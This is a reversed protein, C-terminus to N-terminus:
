CPRRALDRLCCVELPCLLTMAVERPQRPRQGRERPYKSKGNPIKWELWGLDPKLCKLFVELPPPPPLCGTLSCSPCLIPVQSPASLFTPPFHRFPLHCLRLAGPAPRWRGHAARCLAQLAGPGCWLHCHPDKIGKQDPSASAQSPWPM